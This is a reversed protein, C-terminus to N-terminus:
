LEQVICFMVLPENNENRVSHASGKPCYHCEGARMIETKGDFDCVGEGSIVYMAESSTDHTHMGISCGKELIVRIIKIGEALFMNAKFEGDGGKFNEIVTLPIKDFNIM